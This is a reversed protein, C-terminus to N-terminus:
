GPRHTPPRLAGPRKQPDTQSVPEQTHCPAAFRHPGWPAVPPAVMGHPIELGSLYKYRRLVVAERHAAVGATDGTRLRKLDGVKVEIVTRDFPHLMPFVRDERHLVM